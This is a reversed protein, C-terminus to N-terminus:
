VYCRSLIKNIETHTHWIREGFGCKNPYIKEYSALTRKTNQEVPKRSLPIGKCEMGTM